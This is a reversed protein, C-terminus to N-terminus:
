CDLPIFSVALLDLFLKAQEWEDEDLQLEALKKRKNKDTEDRAIIFVFENVAQPEYSRMM